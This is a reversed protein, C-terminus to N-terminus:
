SGITDHSLIFFFLLIFIVKEEEKLTNRHAFKLTFM